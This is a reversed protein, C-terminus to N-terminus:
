EPQHLGGGPIRVPFVFGSASRRTAILSFAIVWFAGVFFCRRWSAGALCCGQCNDRLLEIHIYNLPVDMTQIRTGLCVSPPAVLWPPRSVLFRERSQLWLGRLKLRREPARWM